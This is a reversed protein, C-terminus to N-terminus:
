TWDIEDISVAEGREYERMATEHARLDDESAVDDSDFPVFCRSSLPSIEFDIM